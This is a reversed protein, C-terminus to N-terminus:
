KLIETSRFCGSFGKQLGLQGFAFGYRSCALFPAGFPFADLSGLPFQKLRFLIGPECGDLRFGPSFRFLPFGGLFAPDRADDFVFGGALGLAVPAVGIAFGALVSRKSRGAKAAPL